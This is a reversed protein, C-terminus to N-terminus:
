KSRGYGTKGNWWKALVLSCFYTMITGQKGYSDKECLLKIVLKLVEVIVNNTPLKESNKLACICCGQLM